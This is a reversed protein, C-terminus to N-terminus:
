KNLFSDLEHKTISNKPKSWHRHLFVTLFEHYEKDKKYPNLKLIEEFSISYEPKLTPHWGMWISNVLYGYTAIEKLHKPFQLIGNTNELDYNKLKHYFSDLWCEIIYKSSIRLWKKFFKSEAIKRSTSPSFGSIKGKRYWCWFLKNYLCYLIKKM